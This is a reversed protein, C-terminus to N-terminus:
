CQAVDITFPHPSSLSRFALVAGQLRAVDAASATIEGADIRELLAELYKAAARAQRSSPM